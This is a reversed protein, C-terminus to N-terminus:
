EDTLAFKVMFRLSSPQMQPSRYTTNRAVQLAAEAFGYRPDAPQVNVVRADVLQGLDDIDVEIVV